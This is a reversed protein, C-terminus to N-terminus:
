IGGQYVFMSISYAIIVCLMDYCSGYFFNDFKNLKKYAFFYWIVIKINIFLLSLTMFLQMEKVM